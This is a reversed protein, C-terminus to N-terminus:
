SGNECHSELYRILKQLVAIQDDCYGLIGNCKICLLKRIKNSRHDHDVFLGRPTDREHIGCAACLFRQTQRMQDYVGAPLGYNRKRDCEARSKRYTEPNQLQWEKSNGNKCLKCISYKGDVSNKDNHFDNIDKQIECQNCTKKGPPDIITRTLQGLKNRIETKM